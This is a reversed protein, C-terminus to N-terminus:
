LLAKEFDQVIFSKKLAIMQRRIKLEVPVACLDPTGIPVEELEDL